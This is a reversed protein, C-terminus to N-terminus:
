VKEASKGASGATDIRRHKREAPTAVAICDSDMVAGTFPSMAPRKMGSGVAAAAIAAVGQLPAILRRHDNDQAEVPFFLSDDDFDDDYTGYTIIEDIANAPQAVAEITANELGGSEASPYVPDVHPEGVVPHEHQGEAQQLATELALAGTTIPGAIQQQLQQQGTLFQIYASPLRFHHDSGLYISRDNTFETIVRLMPLKKGHLWWKEEPIGAALSPCVHLENVCNTSCPTQWLDAAAVGATGFKEVFTIVHPRLANVLEVFELNASSELESL